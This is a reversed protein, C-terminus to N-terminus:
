RNNFIQWSAEAQLYLMKLGNEVVAGQEKAKKLFLTEAPNYVLDYCIHSKNIYQYPINPSGDVDPMMGLPTTNVILQTEDMINKNIDEYQIDRGISRSVFKFDIQLKDLVYAVSRSSGGTGLILANQVGPNLLRLLSKEFGIVDTNYGKLINEEKNKSISITNVAGIKLAMEDLFDLYPIITQKYPITVNLGYINENEKLLLSFDDMTKLPYLEYVWDSIGERHFKEGFYLKSFSHGLPYGILGIKKM